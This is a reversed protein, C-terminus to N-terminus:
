NSFIVNERNQSNLSFLNQGASKQCVQHIWSPLMTLPAAKRLSKRSSTNPIGIFLSSSSPNNPTLYLYIKM